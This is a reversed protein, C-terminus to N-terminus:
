DQEGDWFIDLPEHLGQNNLEPVEMLLDLLVNLNLERGPAKSINHDFVPFETAYFVKDRINYGYSAELVKIVDELVEIWTPGNYENQMQHMTNPYEALDSNDQAIYFSVMTDKNMTMDEKEQQIINHFYDELEM